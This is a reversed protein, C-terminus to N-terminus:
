FWRNDIKYLMIKRYNQLLSFPCMFLLYETLLLGTFGQTIFFYMQKWFEPAMRQPLRYKGLLECSYQGIVKQRCWWSHWRLRRIVKIHYCLLLSVKLAIKFMSVPLFFRLRLWSQKTQSLDPEWCPSRDEQSLINICQESQIILNPSNIWKPHIMRSSYDFTFFISLGTM